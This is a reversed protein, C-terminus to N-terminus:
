EAGRVKPLRAGLDRLMAKDEESLEKPAIVKVIAYLDGVGKEHTRIGQGRLRLRAGSSTGPPVTVEAKGQITPVPVTAGLTAEVITLPLDVLVDLGERRFQDHPEIEVTLILDGPPGGSASPSGAGRVRMKTGEAVGMPITVEITQGSGGRVVRVHRTGGRAAELFSVTLAQNIDGGKTPKSRAKARAGFGGGGPSGFPGPDSSSRGGFIEEFISGADFDNFEGQSPGPRGAVNTWTYTGRRGGGGGGAAGGSGSASGPDAVGYRDYNQRKTTDSLVEYAEQVRSFRTAADAAKNVDPHLERALKRYASRIEDATASRKVGLLDYYDSSSPM